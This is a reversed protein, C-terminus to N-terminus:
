HNRWVRRWWFLLYVTAGVTLGLFLGMMGRAGWGWDPSTGLWKRGLWVIVLGAALVYAPWGLILLQQSRDKERGLVRLTKFPHEYLGLSNKALLYSEKITLLLGLRFIKKLM